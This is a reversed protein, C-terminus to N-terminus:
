AHIIIHSSLQDFPGLIAGFPNYETCFLLLKPPEFLKWFVGGFSVGREGSCPLFVGLKSESLFFNELFFIESHVRLDIPCTFLNRTKLLNLIKYNILVSKFIAVVLNKEPMVVTSPERLLTM